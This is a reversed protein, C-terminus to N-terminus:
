GSRVKGAFLETDSRDHNRRTAVDSLDAKLLVRHSAVNAPTATAVVRRMAGADGYV